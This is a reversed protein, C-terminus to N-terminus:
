ALRTEGDVLRLEIPAEGSAEEIQEALARSHTAILMQSRKSASAILQALPPILDPHLSIEPDRLALLAPPRPSLMAAMLCLYRLTGGSLETAELPRQVGPMKMLVRFQTRESRVEMRAGPFAREVAERLEDADGIEIITQLAGALDAGDPSLVPTLVGVQPHRLPSDSDSRFHRYFRWRGIEGRLASLEPYLHPEELQSL